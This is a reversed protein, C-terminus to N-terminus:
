VLRVLLTADSWKLQAPVDQVTYADSWKLWARVDQVIYANTWKLRARVDQVTYANIRVSDERVVWQLTSWTRKYHCM